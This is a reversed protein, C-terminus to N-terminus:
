DDFGLFEIDNGIKPDEEEEWDVNGEKDLGEAGSDEDQVDVHSPGQLNEYESGWVPTVGKAKLHPLWYFACREAMRTCIAAQKNAYGSLGSLVTADGQIRLAGRDRWWMAKWGHYAIVRRMEEQVILLEEKWRMMRARAKAWEVRMSENFEDEGMGSNSTTKSSQNILPVLWIWSPEYRSKTTSTDDPDKGPGSIDKDKLEKLRITWSGHPDLICLAGWATRYVQAARKTKNDFCKWLTLMRTNPKNGTGSVNLRKFQWLGQIIRRQRCVEALADDAQPERLRRELLCIDKLEPLNRIHLPLSSPLFLPINEAFTEPPLPAANLNVDAALQIQSILSAVHPIYALQVERWNQILRLLGMRKEQLDALQKSTRSGKL